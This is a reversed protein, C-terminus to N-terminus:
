HAPIASSASAVSAEPDNCLQRAKQVAQRMLRSKGVLGHFADGAGRLQGGFPM